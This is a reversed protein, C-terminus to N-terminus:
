DRPSPSTYLLCTTTTRPPATPTRARTGSGAPPTTWDPSAPAPFFENRKALSKLAPFLDLPTTITFSERAEEALPMQRYGQLLDLKGFIRASLLDVMDAEQSPMVGPSMAVQENVAKGDCSWVNGITLLCFVAYPTGTGRLTGRKYLYKLFLETEDNATNHPRPELRVVAYRSNCCVSCIGLSVNMMKTTQPFIISRYIYLIQM